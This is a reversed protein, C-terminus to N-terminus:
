PRARSVEDYLEACTVTSKLRDEGWFVIAPSRDRRRLLNEAYNLRADPFWRAGPMRHGDVLAPGSGPDGIVGCFSWVSQWFQAPETVSWRHLGAYDDLAAGWRERVHNGFATLNARAIREPSPTWLPQDM